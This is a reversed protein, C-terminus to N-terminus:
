VKGKLDGMEGMKVAVDYPVMRRRAERLFPRLCKWRFETIARRLPQFDCQITINDKAM